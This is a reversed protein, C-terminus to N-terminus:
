IFSQCFSPIWFCFHNVKCFLHCRVYRCGDDVYFYLVSYLPCPLAHWVISGTLPFLDVPSLFWLGFSPLPSFFSPSLGESPWLPPLTECVWRALRASWAAWFTPRRWGMTPAASTMSKLGCASYRRSTFTWQSCNQISQTSVPAFWRQETLRRSLPLSFEDSSWPRTYNDKLFSWKITSQRRGFQWHGGGLWLTLLRSM